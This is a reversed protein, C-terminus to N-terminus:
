FLFTTEYEPKHNTWLSILEAEGVGERSFLRSRYYFTPIKFPSM